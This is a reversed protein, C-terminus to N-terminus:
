QTSTLLQISKGPFGEIEVSGKAFLADAEGTLGGSPHIYVEFQINDGLEGISSQHKSLHKQLKKGNFKVIKEDGDKIVVFWGKVDNWTVSSMAKVELVKVASGVRVVRDPGVATVHHLSIIEEDGPFKALTAHEAQAGRLHNKMRQIYADVYAPDKKIQGTAKKLNITVKGDISLKVADGGKNYIVKTNASKLASRLFDAMDPDDFLDSLRDFVQSVDDLKGLLALKALLDQDDGFRQTLKTFAQPEAEAAVGLLLQKAKQGFGMATPPGAGAMQFGALESDGEGILDILYPYIARLVMFASVGLSIFSVVREILKAVDGFYPLVGAVSFTAGVWDGKLAAGVADRVDAILGLIWGVVPIFSTTGGAVQGLFFPINTQCPEWWSLITDCTEGVLLGKEFAAMWEEATMREDVVLPDFGDESNTVEYGDDLGDGDTDAQFIETGNVLEAYDGLGDGDADAVMIPTQNEWEADDDLGDGDTDANMPDGVVNYVVPDDAEAAPSIAQGARQTRVQELYAKFQAPDDYFGTEAATPPVTVAEDPGQGLAESLPPEAIGVEFADSLGDGDSDWANPNSFFLRGNPDPMGDTEACDSLGDGDTDSIGTDDSIREFTSPLDAATLVQYFQGGTETAIQQLLWLDVETGLGITYIAVQSQVARTTLSHSYSGVGDTLLVMLRGREPDGAELQDLGLDVGAGINTGGNSDIMDIAANITAKDSTLPTRLYAWSDFDVVTAQDQAWLSQVLLKAGDKRLDDPDNWSMSGSSDIVLAVDIYLPEEEDGKPQCFPVTWFGDWDPIYFVAFKTFHTTEARLTGTAPDFQQSGEVIRWQRATEDFYMMRLGATDGNPVKSLDVPMEVTAEAFPEDSTIEVVPGALGPLNQYGTEDSLSHIRLTATPDGAGSIEVRVNEEGHLSGTQLDDGDLLGDGDTDPNLPDTNLNPEAGDALGDGDTDASLPDTGLSQEETETLGDRDTDARLPHTGLAHEEQNTLGDSDADETPDPLGDGDTDAKGPLFSAGGYRIEFEDSLGDGDTDASLPSAGIRLEIMDPVADEDRDAYPDPEVPILLASFSTRGKEWAEGFAHNAALLEAADLQALGQDRAAKAAQYATTAAQWDAPDIDPLPPQDPLQGNPALLTELDVVRVDAVQRIAMLLDTLAELAEPDYLQHSQWGLAIAHSARQIRALSGAKELRANDGFAEADATLGHLVEDPLPQQGTAELATLRALARLLYGKASLEYGSFGARRIAATLASEHSEYANKAAALSPAVALVALLVALSLAVSRFWNSRFLRRM